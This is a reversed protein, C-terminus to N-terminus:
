LEGDFSLHLHVRQRASHAAAAPVTRRLYLTATDGSAINDILLASSESQPASWVAADVSASTYADSDSGFWIAVNAISYTARLGVTYELVAGSLADAASVDAQAIGNSWRDCILVEGQSGSALYALHAEIRIWADPNEGDRLLMTDDALCCVEPGFTSSGPARWSLKADVCQLAGTGPGNCAAVLVPVVGPVAGIATMQVVDVSDVEIHLPETSM